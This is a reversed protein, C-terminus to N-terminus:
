DLFEIKYNFTKVSNSTNTVNICYDATRPCTWGYVSVRTLRKSYGTEGCIIEVEVDMDADHMVRYVTGELCYDCLGDKEGPNLTVEKWGDEQAFVSFSVCLVFLLMPIVKIHSM